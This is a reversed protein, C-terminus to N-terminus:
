PILRGSLIQVRTWPDRTGLRRATVIDVRCEKAHWFFRVDFKYRVAAGEIWLSAVYHADLDIPNGDLVLQSGMSPESSTHVELVVAFVPGLQVLDGRKVFPM